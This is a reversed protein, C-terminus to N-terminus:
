VNAPQHDPTDSWHRHGPGPSCEGQLSSRGPANNALKASAPQMDTGTGSRGSRVDVAQVWTGCPLAHRHVGPLPPFHQGVRRQVAQDILGDGAIQVQLLRRQPLGYPDDGAGGIRAEQRFDGGAGLLYLVSGSDVGVEMSADFRDPVQAQETGGLARLQASLGRGAVGHGQAIGCLHRHDGIHYAAIEVQGYRLGLLIQQGSLLGHVVAAFLQRQHTLPQTQILRALQFPQARPLRGGTRGDRLRPFVGVVGGTRQCQQQAALTRIRGPVGVAGRRRQTRERQLLDRGVQQSM